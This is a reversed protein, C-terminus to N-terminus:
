IKKKVQEKVEELTAGLPAKLAAEPLEVAIRSQRYQWAASVGATALGLIAILFGESTIIGNTTDDIIGKKVLWLGCATLLHRLFALAFAKLIERTAKDM